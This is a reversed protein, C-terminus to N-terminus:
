LYVVSDSVVGAVVRPGTLATYPALTVLADGSIVADRDPLHLAVHGYTHGPTAIVTPRGQSRWNRM